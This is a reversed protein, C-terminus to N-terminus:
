ARLRLVVHGDPTRVEVAAIDSVNASTAAALHMTKGGVSRWSGVEQTTGTRTRVFLSYHAAGPLHYGFKQPDYRCALRLQTGWTTPEMGLTAEVPVEGVAVMPRSPVASPNSPGAVSTSHHRDANVENAVVPVGIALVAAAAAALGVTAFTRKRRHRAVEQTLAPLLTDPVAEERRPDQLVSADVRGLLGPLGALQQVSTACEHCGALHEEFALRDAPSLAGLVYAADDHAFRCSM